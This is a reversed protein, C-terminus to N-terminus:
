LGREVLSRLGPKEGRGIVLVIGQAADPLLEFFEIEALGVIKWMQWIVAFLGIALWLATMQRETFTFPEEPGPIM